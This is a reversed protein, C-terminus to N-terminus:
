FLLSRRYLDKVNKKHIGLGPDPLERRFEMEGTFEEILLRYNGASNEKEPPNRTWSNTIVM